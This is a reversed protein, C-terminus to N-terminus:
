INWAKMHPIHQYEVVFLVLFRGSVELLIRDNVQVENCSLGALRARDLARGRCVDIGTYM